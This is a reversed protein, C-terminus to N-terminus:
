SLSLWFVSCLVFLDHCVQYVFSTAINDLAIATISGMMEARARNRLFLLVRYRVVALITDVWALPLRFETRTAWAIFSNLSHSIPVLDMDETIDNDETRDAAFARPDGSAVAGVVLLYTPGHRMQPQWFGAPVIVVRASIANARISLRSETQVVMHPMTRLPHKERYEAMNASSKKLFEFGIGNVEPYGEDEIEMPSRLNQVISTVFIVHEINNRDTYVCGAGVEILMGSFTLRDVTWENKESLHRRPVIDALFKTVEHTEQHAHARMPLFKLDEFLDCSRVFSKTAAYKPSRGVNGFAALNQLHLRVTEPSIDETYLDWPVQEKWENKPPIMGTVLAHFCEAGLKDKFAPGLLREVQM